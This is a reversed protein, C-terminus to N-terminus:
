SEGHATPAPSVEFLAGAFLVIASVLDEADIVEPEVFVQLVLGDLLGLLLRPILPSPVRPRLGFREMAAILHASTQGSALRYYGALQPRLSPDHLAHALLSAIVRVEDSDSTRINWLEGVAARMASMPDSGSGSWARLTRNIM